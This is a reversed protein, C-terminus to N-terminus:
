TRGWHRRDPGTLWRWVGAPAPRPRVGGALGFITWQRALGRDPSLLRYQAPMPGRGHLQYLAAGADDLAVLDYHVRVLEVLEREPVPASLSWAAESQNM